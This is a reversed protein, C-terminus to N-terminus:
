SFHKLYFIIREHMVGRPTTTFINGPVYSTSLEPRFAEEKKKTKKKQKPKTNKTRTTKKTEKYLTLKKVNIYKRGM